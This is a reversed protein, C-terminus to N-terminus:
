KSWLNSCLKENHPLPDFIPNQGDKACFEYDALFHDCVIDTKLLFEVRLGTSNHDTDRGQKASIAM